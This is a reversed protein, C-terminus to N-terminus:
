YPAPLSDTLVAIPISLNGLVIVLAFFAAFRSSCDRSSTKGLGLTQFLSAGGHHLHLGLLLNAVIYLVASPIHSFGAVIMGYVDGEAQLTAVAPDFSTLTFHALHYGLFGLIVLGSLLMHRGAFTSQRFSVTSYGVPRAARNQRVVRLASLIHATFMTLLGLRAAWLVGPMAHLKAAYGNITAPGLFVQLNGLMHALVFLMLAAGTVAMVTKAGISAQLTNSLSM